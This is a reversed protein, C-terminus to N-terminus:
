KLLGSLRALARGLLARVADETRGIQEAIEANSLGVIRSAVIVDRYDEPLARVATEIRNLEEHAIANRSPTCFSGYCDILMAESSDTPSTGVERAADRKGARYYRDRDIIKRLATTFLWQRFQAEGRYDFEQADELVERCVSQALDSVSEKRRILDGAQLRIFALLGPLHRTLLAAMAPADGRTASRLLHGSEDM